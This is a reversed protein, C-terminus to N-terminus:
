KRTKRPKQRSKLKAKLINTQREAKSGYRFSKKKKKKQSNHAPTTHKTHKKDPAPVLTKMPQPKPILEANELGMQDFDEVVTVTTMKEADEFHSQWISDRPMKDDQIDEEDMLAGADNSDAM